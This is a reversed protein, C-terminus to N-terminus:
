EPTPVVVVPVRSLRIVREATSGLVLRKLGRRGHTGVVLMHAGVSVGKQLITDSVDGEFALASVELGRARAAAGLAGLKRQARGLVRAIQDEAEADEEELPLLPLAYVHLLALEAGMLEALEAAQSVVDESGTSLDVACLITKGSAMPNRELNLSVSTVVGQLIQAIALAM